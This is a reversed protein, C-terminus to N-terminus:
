QMLYIGREIINPNIKDKVREIEQETAYKLVNPKDPQKIIPEEKTFCGSVLVLGLILFILLKKMYVENVWVM